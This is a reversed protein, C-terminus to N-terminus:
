WLRVREGSSLYLAQGPKVGFADYWADINRVADARYEALAHGDTVILQRMLPERLKDRWSQAFSIFFQQDGTLGQREPAPKGGLSLRYGDYAVSLGAVDAINESLTLQGNVALDPLPHYGNYQAVLRGSAEKFHAFDEATWWNALRGAADFQSGQDDFSHSIEHGIVAGIAGYNNTADAKPDFYPPQLIAAPFNLANQLPLNVANVTQPTMWWESRDVPKGLKALNRDYEYLEAQFANRLASDRGIELGSYDRWVDPYGVGVKLTKLKEKAKEKTQPSMWTLKDIRRGFAQVLDAVMAEAKTKAEPPFYHQVYLRGVADGMAFNTAVVARKWRERLQPTGALVKGYFAFREEVFAKPLLFSASDLLQYTLYDKWIEIPERGVLSAEGAIASPQWVIIVPQGDLGAAKFFAPWDLGAAKATFDKPKWPNNAKHVEESDERRWHIRAIKTELDFIRTARADANSIKALKLVATVHAKYKSRIDAMRASDSLYYERDPMGLGGQLLYPAYRTPGNFDQAVWVGFLHQTHFNTNNLPDVDARVTQALAEALARRNSIAAIRDLQGRLPELGKSEIAAEDLFAAYYDGAKREDSGAPATGKAADELLKRTRLTAEEELMADPGYSSRDPPIETTKVWTGNAFGYFDDGPKVARDMGALDVAGTNVASGAAPAKSASPKSCATLAMFAVLVLIKSVKCYPRGGRRIGCRHVGRSETAHEMVRANAEAM